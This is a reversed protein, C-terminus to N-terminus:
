YEKELTEFRVLSRRFAMQFAGVEGNRQKAVIIKVLEVDPDINRPKEEEEETATSKSPDKVDYNRKKHLILILDADQEISGSDRLNAMTPEQNEGERGVQCLAIIPINLERALQKLSRSVHGIQEFRPTTAPDGSDILGIYDIFIIQVGHERVMRRAQRRIDILPMNPTDSIFLNNKDYLTEVTAFLKEEDTNTLRKPNRIISFPINSQASLLREILASGSMELSFFGVKVARSPDRFAMSAAVTLAFATKGVSPRAAIIDFESNKFCTIFNDLDRLGSSVGDVKGTKRRHKIDEFANTIMDKSEKLDGVNKGSSLDILEQEYKDLVSDLENAESKALDQYKLTLGIVKRRLSYDKVIKAYYIANTVTPANDSLSAVYAIGGCPGIKNNVKLYNSFTVLDLAQTQSNEEMFSNIAAFLSNHKTVSFDEPILIGNIDQWASKDLLLAGLVAKEAEINVPSTVTYEKENEKYPM